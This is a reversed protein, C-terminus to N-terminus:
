LGYQILWNCKICYDTFTKWSDEGDSRVVEIKLLIIQNKTRANMIM